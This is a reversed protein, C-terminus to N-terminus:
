DVLHRRVAEAAGATRNRVHLKRIIHQVHGRATTEAIHLQDGIEKNTLGECVLELVSSERNTLDPHDYSKKQKLVYGIIPDVFYEGSLIAKLALNLVYPQFGRATLIANSPSEIAEQLLKPELSHLTLLIYCSSDVNVQKINHSLLIGSGDDLREDILAIISEENGELISLAEESRTCVGLIQNQADTHILAFTTALSIAISRRPSCVLIRHNPIIKNIQLSLTQFEQDFLYIM